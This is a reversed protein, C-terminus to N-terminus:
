EIVIKKVLVEDFSKLTIYYIGKSVNSLDMEKVFEGLEAHTISMIEQALANSILVEVPSESLIEAKLTFKGNSPNPIVDFYGLSNLIVSAIKSVRYTNNHYYRIIRYYIRGRGPNKDLFSFENAKSNESEIRGISEFSTGDLSREVLFYSIKSESFDSWKVEVGENVKTAEVEDNSFALVCTFTACVPIRNCSYVNNATYKINFVHSGSSGVNNNYLTFNASVVNKGSNDWVLNTFGCPNTSCSTNSTNSPNLTQCNNNFIKVNTGNGPDTVWIFYKTNASLGVGPFTITTQLPASNAPVTVSSGVVDAITGGVNIGLNNCAGCNYGGAYNVTAVRFRYNYTHPNNDNPNPTFVDISNITIDRTTSIMLPAKAGDDNNSAANGCLQNTVGSATVLTGTFSSEDQVYLVRGTCGDMTSTLSSTVGSINMGNNLTSIGPLTNIATGGTPASYWRYLGTEGGSTTSIRFMGSAGVTACIISNGADFFSAPPFPSLMISGSVTPCVSCSTRVVGRNDLIEYKYEGFNTATYNGPTTSTTLLAFGSTTNARYYWNFTNIGVSGVPILPGITRSVPSCLQLDAGLSPPEACPITLSCGTPLPIVKAYESHTTTNDGLTGERNTGYQWVNGNADTAFYWADGSSISVIGTLTTTANTRVYTPCSSTGGVAVSGQGLTGYGVNGAYDLSNFGFSVVRGNDLVISSSFQAASIYAAKPQGPDGIFPAVGLGNNQGNTACNNPANVKRAFALNNNNTGTGLQGRGNQGYAWVAGNSDLALSHADGGSLKSINRLDGDSIGDNNYDAQARAACNAATNAAVPRGLGNAGGTGWTWVNGFRDLANGTADGATIQVIDTLNGGGYAPCKQVAMPTLTFGPTNNGIGLEGDGNRGWAFVLGGISTVAYSVEGGGGVNLVPGNASGFGFGPVSGVTHTGSPGFFGSCNGATGQGLQGCTNSGWTWVGGNCDVAIASSTSGADVQRINLPLGAVSQPTLYFATASTPNVQGKSNTGWAFVISNSCIAVSYDFGGSIRLDQGQSM